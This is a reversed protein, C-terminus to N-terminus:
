SFHQETSCHANVGECRVICKLSAVSLEWGKASCVFSMQIIISRIIGVLDRSRIAALQLRSRFKPERRRAYINLQVMRLRAELEPHCVALKDEHHRLRGSPKSGIHM